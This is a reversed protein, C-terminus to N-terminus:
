KAGKSAPPGFGDQLIGPRFMSEARRYPARGARVRDAAPGVGRSGAHSEIARGFGRREAGNQREVLRPKRLGRGSGNLALPEKFVRGEPLVRQRPGEGATGGSGGGESGELGELGEGTGM